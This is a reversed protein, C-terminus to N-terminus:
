HLTTMNQTQGASGRQRWKGTRGQRLGPGRAGAPQHHGEGGAAGRINWCAQERIFHGFEQRRAQHHFVASARAHHDPGIQDALRGLIPLGDEVCGDGMGAQARQKVAQRKIGDRIEDGGGIDPLDRHDHQDILVQGRAGQRLQNVQQAIVGALIIVRGAAIATRHMQRTLQEQVHRAAQLDAM